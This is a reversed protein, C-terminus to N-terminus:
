AGAGGRSRDPVRRAGGNGLGQFLGADDDRRDPLARQRRYQVGSVEIPGIEREIREILAAVDAEVRADLGFAYAEGGEARIAEALKDIAETHRPRRTVCVRLGERAFARAISAGLGDGAGIVLCVGRGPEAESMRRRGLQFAVSYGDRDGEIRTERLYRLISRYRKVDADALRWFYRYGLRDRLRRRDGRSVLRAASLARAPRRGRARGPLWDVLPMLFANLVQAAINLWVLDSAFGLGRLGLRHCLAAYVRMSGAPRSPGASRALASLRRDRRRGLGAGALRRDGRGALRRARRRRVRGQGGRDGLGPDARRQDRRREDLPEVTAATPSPRGRRRDAGGRDPVPDPDRRDGTDWRAHVLDAPSCGRTRGDGVAPLFDDVPQLDRRHDRRGHVPLRPRRAAPRVADSAMAALGPARRGPSSSSRWSSCASSSRRGSSGGTPARPRRDVLLTAAALPLTVAARSASCSASGPSAPSNPSSRASRRRRWARSRSLLAWGLGYRERILEAHGRGTFVGLRM